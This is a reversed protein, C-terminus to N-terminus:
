GSTIGKMVSSVDPRPQYSPSPGRPPHKVAWKSYTYHYARAFASHDDMRPAHKNTRERNIVQKAYVIGARIERADKTRM